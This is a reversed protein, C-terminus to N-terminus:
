STKKKKLWLWFLKEIMQYWWDYIGTELGGNREVVRLPLPTTTLLQRKTAETFLSPSKRYFPLWPAPSLHLPKYMSPVRFEVLQGQNWSLFVLDDTYVQGWGATIRPMAQWKCRTPVKRGSCGGCKSRTLDTDSERTNFKFFSQLGTKEVASCRWGNSSHIDTVSVPVTM